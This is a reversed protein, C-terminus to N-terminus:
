VRQNQMGHKKDKGRHRINAFPLPLSPDRLKEKTSISVNEIFHDLMEDEVGAADKTFGYYVYCSPLNSLVKIWQGGSHPSGDGIKTSYYESIRNSLAKGNKRRPAKGIYLINEDPLWFEKLREELLQINKKGDITLTPSKRFWELLKNQDILPNELLGNNKSPEDSLSIIYVSENQSSIEEGWKVRNQKKVHFKEFLDNLITPM